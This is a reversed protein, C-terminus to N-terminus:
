RGEVGTAVLLPPCLDCKGNGLQPSQPRAPASLGLFQQHWGEWAAPYCPLLTEQTRVPGLHTEDRHVWGVLKSIAEDM